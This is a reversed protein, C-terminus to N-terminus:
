PTTSTFNAALAQLSGAFISHFLESADLDSVGRPHIPCVM